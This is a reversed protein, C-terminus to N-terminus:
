CTVPKLLLDGLDHRGDLVALALVRDGDLRYSIRWPRELRERYIAIGEDRLEPVIRGRSALTTLRQTRLRLRELVLLAEDASDRAIFDIIAELDDAAAAKPSARRTTTCGERFSGDRLRDVGKKGGHLVIAQPDVFEVGLGEAIDDDRPAKVGLVKLHATPRRFEHLYAEARREHLGSVLPDAEDAVPIRLREVRAALVKRAVCRRLSLSAQTRTPRPLPDLRRELARLPSSHEAIGGSM